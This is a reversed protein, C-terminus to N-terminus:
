PSREEVEVEPGVRRMVREYSVGSELWSGGGNLSENSPRSNLLRASKGTEKLLVLADGTDIERIDHVLLM